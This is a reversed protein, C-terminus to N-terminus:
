KCQEGPDKGSRAARPETGGLFAVQWLEPSGALETPELNGVRAFGFPSLGRPPTADGPHAAAKPGFPTIGLCSASLYDLGAPLTGAISARGAKGRKKEYQILVFTPM